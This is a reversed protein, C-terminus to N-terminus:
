YRDDDIEEEVENATEDVAEGVSEIDEGAGEVTQCASMGGAFGFTLALAALRRTLDTM